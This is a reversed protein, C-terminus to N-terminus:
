EEAEKLKSGYRNEYEQKSKILLFTKYQDLFNRNYEDHIM